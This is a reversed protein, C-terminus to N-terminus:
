VPSTVFAPCKCKAALTRGGLSGVEGDGIEREYGRWSGERRHRERGERGRKRERGKGLKNREDVVDRTEVRARGHERERITRYRPCVHVCSINHVAAAACDVTLEAGPKRASAFKGSKFTLKSTISPMEVPVPVM